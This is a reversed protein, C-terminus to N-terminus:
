SSAGNGVSPRPYREDNGILEDCFFLENMDNECSQGKVALCMYYCRYLMGRCVRAGMERANWGVLSLAPVPRFASPMSQSLSSRTCTNPVPVTCVPCVPHAKLEKM